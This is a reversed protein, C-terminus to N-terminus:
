NYGRDGPVKVSNNYHTQVIDDGLIKDCERFRNYKRDMYVTANNYMYHYLRIAGPANGRIRWYNTRVNILNYYNGIESILIEHLSTIFRESGCAFDVSACGKRNPYIYISGDGDFYGRVFHNTVDNPVNPYEMILSKAPLMGIERLREYPHLRSIVLKYWVGYSNSCMRIPIDCGMLSSVKYLHDIDKSSIEFRCRNRCIYGDAYLYGLVYASNESWSDFFKENM